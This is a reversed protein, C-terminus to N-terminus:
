PYLTVSNYFSKVRLDHRITQARQWKCSQVHYKPKLQRQGYYNLEIVKPM